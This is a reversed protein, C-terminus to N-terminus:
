FTYGISFHFAGPSEEPGPDLKWGYMGGIPGIPTIYRLALGVSERFEDTGKDQNPDRVAGTDYFIAAEFNMGLDYRVEASTLLSTRGGVPDNNEDVRLKNEAFGRVDAAGGLFFLQDEAVRDSSGYPDIYGIKGRLALTLREFPSYYYRTNLRYKFFDDISTDLGRSVDVSMSARVGRTPRMYSDTSNYVLGPSVTAIARRTYEDEEEEPVQRGNTRYQERSEYRFNLNGTLRPMIPRSFGQSAGYLRIGFDKNLEETEETYITTGSSIQTGLFRPENLDLDLRYGIQSLEIGGRLEKNLGMLNRDGAATNIYFLRRTDYGAAAEVFYPKIEHIEALMDVRGAKQELGFTKFEATDVVQLSRINRRSATIKSLSFPEGPSIRTERELIRQRTKFNGTFFIEGMRVFPGPDVTYTIDAKTEDDTFLIEPEVSVHPYGEESVAAALSNRDPRVLYQRFPTGPKMELSQKAADRSVPLEGKIKVDRVITRPGEEIDLRVAVDITNKRDPSPATEVTKQISAHRYGAEEYLANIERIDDELIGPDYVGEHRFEPPATLMRDLVKERAFADVGALVVSDVIYKAGEKIVFRINKTKADPDGNEPTKQKTRIEVDQYGAKHYRKEMNRISKRLGLSGTDGESFIVLDKKLTYDWFESNGEFSVRSRPGESITFIVRATKEDPDKKIESIVEAEAYGKSTYFNRIKEADEKIKEEALRSAGGPLLSSQWVSLRTKLRLGSFSKNGRLRLAEVSYYDGKDITVDLLCHGDQPDKRHSITVKPSIFGERLFLKKINEEQRSIKEKFCPDGAEIDMANRIEKELLPFGGKIRINKVRAYPKLNFVLDIEKQSWDPDPIEIEKFLQSHKLAEVSRSFGIDSFPRGEKLYILNRAIEELERIDGPGQSINIRISDVAPQNGSCVATDPCTAIIILAASLAVIAARPLLRSIKISRYTTHM